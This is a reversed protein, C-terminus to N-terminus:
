KNTWTFYSGFCRMETFLAAEICQQFEEIEKDLVDTGGIRDECSLIANFDGIVNWAEQIHDGLVRINDWLSRRQECRNFGHVFTMFFPKQALQQIIYCHLM